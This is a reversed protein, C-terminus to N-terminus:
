SISIASCLYFRIQYIYAHIGYYYNCNQNVTHIITTSRSPDFLVSPVHHATTIYLDQLLNGPISYSVEYKVGQVVNRITGAPSSTIDTVEPPYDSNDPLCMRESSGRRSRYNTGGARGSYVLEADQTIQAPHRGIGM